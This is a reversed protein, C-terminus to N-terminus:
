VYHVMIDDLQDQLDGSTISFVNEGPDNNSVTFIPPECGIQQFYESKTNVYELFADINIPDGKIKINLGTTIPINSYLLRILNCMSESALPGEINSVTFNCMSESGLPGEINSVTFTSM